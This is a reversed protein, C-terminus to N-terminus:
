ANTSDKEDRWLKYFEAETMQVGEPSTLTLITDGDRHCFVLTRHVAERGEGIVRIKFPATGARTTTIGAIWWPVM